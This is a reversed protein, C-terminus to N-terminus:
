KLAKRLHEISRAAREAQEAAKDLAAGVAEAHARSANIYNMTATLANILKFLIDQVDSPGQQGGSSQGDASSEFVQMEKAPENAM